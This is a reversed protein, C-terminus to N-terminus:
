KKYVEKIIQKRPCNACFKWTRDSDEFGRSVHRQIMERCGTCIQNNIGRFYENHHIGMVLKIMTERDIIFRQKSMNLPVGAAKSLAAVSQLEKAFIIAEEETM